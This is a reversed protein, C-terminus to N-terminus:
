LLEETLEKLYEAPVWRESKSHNSALRVWGLSRTYSAVITGHLLIDDKSATGLPSNRVRVGPEGVVRYYIIDKFQFAKEQNPKAEMVAKDSDKEAYGHYYYLVRSRFHECVSDWSMSRSWPLSFHCSDVTQPMPNMEWLAEGYLFVAGSRVPIRKRHCIEAIVRCTTEFQAHTIAEPPEQTGYENSILGKGCIAVGVVRSHTIHSHVAFPVETTDDNHQMTYRGYRLKSDREVILHYKMLDEPTAYPMRDTLHLVVAEPHSGDDIFTDKLLYNNLAM